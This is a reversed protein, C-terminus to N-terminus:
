PSGSLDVARSCAALQDLMMTRVRPLQSELNNLQQLATVYSRLDGVDTAPESTNNIVIDLYAKIYELTGQASNTAGACSAVYEQRGSSTERALLSAVAAFLLVALLIGFARDTRRM